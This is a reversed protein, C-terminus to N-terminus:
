LLHPSTTKLIWQKLREVRETQQIYDKKNAQYVTWTMQFTRFGDATLDAITIPLSTQSNPPGPDNDGNMSETSGRATITPQNPTKHKHDALNPATPDELFPNVGQIQSWVGGAVAQAQFQLDWSEWDDSICNRCITHWGYGTTGCRRASPAKDRAYNRTCNDPHDLLPTFSILTSTSLSFCNPHQSSAGLNTIHDLSEMCILKQASFITTDPGLM